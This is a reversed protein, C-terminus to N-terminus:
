TGGRLYYKLADVAEVAYLSGFLGTLLGAVLSLLGAIRLPWSGFRIGRLVQFGAYLAVAIGGAGLSLLAFAGDKSSPGACIGIAGFLVGLPLIVLSSCSVLMGMKLKAIRKDSQSEM